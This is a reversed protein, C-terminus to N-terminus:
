DLGDNVQFINENIWIFSFMMKFVYINPPETGKFCGIWQLFTEKNRGFWERIIQVM